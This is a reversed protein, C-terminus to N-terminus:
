FVLNVGFNFTRIMPYDSWIAVSADKYEYPDIITWLNTGTFYFRLNEIGLAKTASKPLSYSINLTRLSLNHGDHVWFSSSYNQLGKYLRPYKADPNDETWYNKYWLELNNSTSSLWAGERNGGSNATWFAKEYRVRTGFSGTFLLSVSLEKWSAGLRLSYEYPNGSRGTIHTADLSQDIKGNPTRDADSTGGIDKYMLYGPKLLDAEKLGLCEIVETTNSGYYAYLNKKLYDVYEQAQEATRAIGLCELGVEGATHHHEEDKWTGVASAAQYKKIILNDGWSFIGTASLQWDKNIRKNWGLSWEIGWANEIGYNTYPLTTGVGVTTPVYSSTKDLIDFTHRFYADSAFTFDNLFTADIGFNYSDTKEWTVDKGTVVGANKPELGQSVTSSGGLYVGTASQYSQEWARTNGKDYGVRGYSLRLKLDQIVSEKLKKFWPEESVRWGMSVAPFFGWRSDPHFVTSGEYRFTAEFLYRDAYNYTVRGIYSQRAGNSMGDTITEGSSAYGSMQNYITGYSGTRSAQLSNGTSRTQEFVILGSIDHLGFKHAYSISPNIQYNWSSSQGKELQDKNTILTRYGDGEVMQDSILHNNTGTMQYNYVYYSRAVKISNDSSNAFNMQLNLTLGDLWPMKWHFAAGMSVNNSRSQNYSGSNIMELPHGGSGSTAYGVPYGDIYAPIWRPMRLLTGFTGYLRDIETDGSNYPRNTKRQSYDMSFSATINKALEADVGMRTGLRRSYLNDFNGDQYMYSGGVYYQVKDNGGSVNITHRTNISSKWAMDLWNYDLSKMKELEDASYYSADSVTTGMYKETDYMDNLMDAQQYASMMQPMRAGSNVGVSGSYNVRTKGAQGHKTKVLIAGGAARSGYVAASADKLVSISEIESPDLMNFTDADRIFGDIVYLPDENNSYSGQVRVKITATATPSGSVEGISVGPMTGMLTSALDKAPIDEIQKSSISAVSGALNARKVTGYGVVVVDNLVQNNQKLNITMGGRVAKVALKDYGIYTVELTAGAPCNISFKGDLDTITKATGGKQVVTAGIVAEGNEDLVTGTIKNGTQQVSMVAADNNATEARLPLVGIFLLAYVILLFHKKM